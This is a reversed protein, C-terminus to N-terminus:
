GDNVQHNAIFGVLGGFWELVESKSVSTPENWLYSRFSSYEYDEMNKVLGSIFPNQHIYTIVRTYYTESNVKKSKYRGQWLGGVRNYSQNITKTYSILMNKIGKEFNLRDKVRIFFHFHNPMLCYAFVDVSPLVYSKFQKLFFIYNRDEFFVKAKNNGRNYIHYFSGEEIKM